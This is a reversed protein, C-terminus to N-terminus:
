DDVHVRAYLREFRGELKRLKERLEELDKEAAGLRPDETKRLNAIVHDIRVQEQQTQTARFAELDPIASSAHALELGHAAALQVRGVPDRLLDVLREIARERPRKDLRRALQGLAHAAAPRARDSTKGIVCRALLLELARPDRTGALGRLAGSQEFGNYSDREAAAAIQEFPADERQAGLLEWAVMAARHPLGGRVRELVAAALKPDRVDMCGRLLGELVRHDQEIGIVDALAEIAQASAADGLAKAWELRVGWFPEDVWRESVKVLAKRKGAKILERGALIRGLVDPAEVLQTELKDAGPDFDLKLLVEFDPDVRVMDPEADLEFAFSHREREIQVQRRQTEGDITWALTLPFSFVGGSGGGSGSEADKQEVQTQKITFTGRGNADDWEFEADIMPYGVGHFWQDFFKGLSRGSVREMVRRFDDTEVVQGAYEQLYTRTGEWFLEDGLTCRLTHLRAAGGPYLHMDYMEFSNHFERTVIPRRYRSDAERFYSRANLWLEYLQEDRGLADEFWCCEMYTAWSEKLWAHAYDRCVVLDGFWSHAMEHVNIQDVLRGWEGALTEDLLFQDDWSVLSINEMAGGFHPLAFQYYKPFPFPMGLKDTMWEMIAATGGFSRCLHDVDHQKSAFYALAVGEGDGLHDGDDCKTFDGIAFCTLYSPCPQDLGWHATKTGDDHRQESHLVGNALITLDDAARLHFTLTPRVSPLDITPLWHRARETEHDTAAFRAATPAEASPSSFFLGSVPQRVRYRIALKRTAGRQAGAAWTVRIQQGDYRWSIESGGQDESEVALDEFDLANLVLQTAGARRWALTHTVVGAASRGEIDVHLDIDLHVPEIGLDPPYHAEAGPLTFM